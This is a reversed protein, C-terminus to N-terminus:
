RKLTHLSAAISKAYRDLATEIEYELHSDDIDITKQKGNVTLTLQFGGRGPMASWSLDDISTGAASAHERIRSELYVKGEHVSRLKSM